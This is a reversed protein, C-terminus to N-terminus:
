GVLPAVSWVKAPEGPVSAKEFCADVAEATLGAKMLESRLKTADLRGVPTRLTLNLAYFKGNAVILTEGQNAKKVREIAATVSENNILKMMDKMTADRQKKFYAYAASDVMFYHLTPDINAGGSPPGHGDTRGLKKFMKQLSSMTAKHDFLHEM